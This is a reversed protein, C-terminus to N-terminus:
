TKLIKNTHLVLSLVNRRPDFSEYSKASTNKTRGLDRLFMKSSPTCIRNALSSSNEGETCIGFAFVNRLEAQM